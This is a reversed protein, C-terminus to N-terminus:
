EAWVPCHQGLNSRYLIVGYRIRLTEHSVCLCVCVNEFDIVLSEKRYSLLVGNAEVIIMKFISKTLSIVSLLTVILEKWRRCYIKTPRLRVYVHVLFLQFSIKKQCTRTPSNQVIEYNDTFIDHFAIDGRTLQKSSDYKGSSVQVM